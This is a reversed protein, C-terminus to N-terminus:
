MLAENCDMCLYMQYPIVQEQGSPNQPDLASIKKFAIKQDFYICGCKCKINDLKEPDVTISPGQGPGPGQQMGPKM